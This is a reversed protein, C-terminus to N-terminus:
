GRNSVDKNKLNKKMKYMREDAITIFNEVLEEKADEPSIEYIGYSLGTIPQVRRLEDDIRKLIKEAENLSCNLLLILFEDGGFRFINDLGERTQRKVINVFEKLIKDGEAHGLTDNIKKFDNLDVMVISIKYNFRRARAFEEKVKEFFYRRNYANTLYDTTSLQELKKNLLELELSKKTLERQSNVLQNNLMAVEELLELESRRDQFTDQMKKILGRLTNIQENNIKILEDAITESLDNFFIIIIEDKCLFGSCFLTIPYSDVYVNVLRDSFYGDGQLANLVVKISNKSKETLVDFLNESRGFINNRDYIVQVITGDRKFKVIAETLYIRDKM